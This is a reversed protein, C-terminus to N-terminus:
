PNHKQMWRDISMEDGIDSEVVGGSVIEEIPDPASSPKIQKPESLKASIKGIEIAAAIPNMSVIQDAKDLHTGLYYALAPGQKDEMIASLVTPQLVPVKNLVDKFDPKDEAFKVSNESFKNTADAQAQKANAEKQKNRDDQLKSNVRYDVLADNHKQEDYDFDELKPEILEAQPRERLEDLESQLKEAKRVANWKDETVKNIRKQFGDEKPKKEAEPEPTEETAKPKEVEPNEGEQPAPEENTEGMAEEISKDLDDLVEVQEAKTM